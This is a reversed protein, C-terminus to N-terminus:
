GAELFKKQPAGGFRGVAQVEMLPDGPMIM